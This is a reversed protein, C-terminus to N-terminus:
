IDQLDRFKYSHTDLFDEVSMSRIVNDGRKLYVRGNKTEARMPNYVRNYGIITNILTGQKKQYTM